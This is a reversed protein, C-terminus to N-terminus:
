LFLSYFPSFVGKGGGDVRLNGGICFEEKETYAASEKERKGWVGEGAVTRLL